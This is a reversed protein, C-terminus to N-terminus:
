QAVYGWVSTVSIAMLACDRNAIWFPETFEADDPLRAAGEFGNAQCFKFLDDAFTKLNSTGDDDIRLVKRYDDQRLVFVSGKIAKFVVGDVDVLVFM